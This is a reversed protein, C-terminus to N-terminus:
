LGVIPLLCYGVIPASWWCGHGIGSQLGSLVHVRHRQRVRALAHLDGRVHPVAHDVVPVEELGDEVVGELLDEPSSPNVLFKCCPIPVLPFNLFGYGCESSENIM